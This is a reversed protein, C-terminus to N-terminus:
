RGMAYKIMDIVKDADSRTDTSCTVTFVMGRFYDNARGDGYIQPNDFVNNGQSDKLGSLYSQLEAAAAEEHGAVLPTHFKALGAVQLRNMLAMTEIGSGGVVEDLETDKMIEKDAM